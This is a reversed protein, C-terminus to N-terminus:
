VIQCVLLENEVEQAKTDESDNTQFLMTKLTMVIVASKLVIMCFLLAFFGSEVNLFYIAGVVFNVMIEPLLICLSSSGNAFQENLTDKYIAASVVFLGLSFFVLFSFAMSRQNMCFAMGFQSVLLSAYIFSITPEEIHSADDDDQEEQSLDLNSAPTVERLAIEDDDSDYDVETQELLPADLEDYTSGLKQSTYSSM